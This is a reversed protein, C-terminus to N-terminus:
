DLARDHSLGAGAYPPTSQSPKSASICFQLVTGHGPKYDLIIKNFISSEM